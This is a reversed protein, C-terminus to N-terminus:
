NKPNYYRYYTQHVYRYLMPVSLSLTASQYNETEPTTISVNKSTSRMTSYDTVLGVKSSDTTTAYTTVVQTPMHNTVTIRSLTSDLSLSIGSTNTFPTAGSDNRLISGYMSQGISLVQSPTSWQVSFVSPAKNITITLSGTETEFNEAEVQYYVTYTEANIFEPITSLACADESTGYKIQAANLPVTESSVSVNAGGTTPSGSYTDSGNTVTVTMKAPTIISVVVQESIGQYDDTEEVYYHVTYSGPMTASPITKSWDETDSLRFYVAANDLVSVSEVLSQEKGSYPKNLFKIEAVQQIKTIESTIPTDFIVDKWNDDGFVRYYVKYIDTITATPINTTWSNNDLSYKLVGGTTTGPLVLEHAKSNFPVSVRQPAEVIPTGKEITVTITKEDSDLYNENWAKIYYTVDYTGANTGSPITNSYTGNGVKYMFTGGYTKGESLLFQSSGTYVLKQSQPEVLAKAQGWISSTISQESVDKYNPDGKVRYFVTYLGPDNGKPINTSYSGTDLKYEITGGIASGAIILEQLSGNEDENMTKGQPPTVIPTAYDIDANVSGVESDYHQADGKIYFYVKYVGADTATPITQSWEGDELKYYIIGNDTAGAYVLQQPNGNYVLPKIAPKQLYTSPERPTQPTRDITPSDPTQPTSPLTPAEPVIASDGPTESEPNRRDKKKLNTGNWQGYVKVTTDSYINYDANNPLMRIFVTYESNRYKASETNVTDTVIARIQNYLYTNTDLSLNELFTANSKKTSESMNNILGKGISITQQGDKGGNHAFTITVGSMNGSPKYVVRNAQRANDNYHWWDNAEVKGAETGLNYDEVMNETTNTSPSGDAYCSYNSELAYMMLDEYVNQQAMALEIAVAVENMQSTDKDARSGEAYQVLVPALVGVLTLMIGLVVVIEVLTFGKKHNRNRM